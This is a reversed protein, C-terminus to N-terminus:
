QMTSAVFAVLLVLILITVIIAVDNSTGQEVVVKQSIDGANSLYSSAIRNVASLSGYDDYCFLAIGCQNAYEIAAVTYMTATFFLMVQHHNYARAGFLRQLDPRGTPGSKRWKVQAIAGNATVDIGGDPGSATIKADRWGMARMAIAAFEEAARASQIQVSGGRARGQQATIM